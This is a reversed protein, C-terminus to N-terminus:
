PCYFNRNIVFYQHDLLLHCEYLPLWDGLGVYRQLLAGPSMTMVLRHPLVTLHRRLKRKRRARFVVNSSTVVVALRHRLQAKKGTRM